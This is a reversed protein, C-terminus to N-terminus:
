RKIETLMIVELEMWKKKFFFFFVIGDKLITSYYNVPCKYQLKKLWVDISPWKSHKWAKAVLFFSAM